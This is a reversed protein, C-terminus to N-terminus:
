ISSNVTAKEIDSMKKDNNKFLHYLLILSNVVNASIGGFSIFYVNHIFWSVEALLMGWRMKKGSLLFMSITASLASILPFISIANQWVIFSVISHVIGFFIAMKLKFSFPHNDFYTSTFQRIAISFVVASATYASLLFFHVVWIFTAITLIIKMKRDNHQLFGFATIVFAIIGILQGILKIDM